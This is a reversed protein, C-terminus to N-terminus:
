LEEQRPANLSSLTEAMDRKVGDVLAEPMTIAQRLLANKEGGLSKGHQPIEDLMGPSQHRV